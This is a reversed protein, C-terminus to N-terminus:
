AQRTSAIDVLKPTALTKWIGESHTWSTTLGLPVPFDLHPTSFLSSARHAAYRCVVLVLWTFRHFASSKLCLYLLRVPARHIAHRKATAHIPETSIGMRELHTGSESVTYYCWRTLFASGPKATPGSAFTSLPVFLLHDFHGHYVPRVLIGVQISPTIAAVLQGLSVGFLEV